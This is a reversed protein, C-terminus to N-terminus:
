RQSIGRFAARPRCSLLRPQPWQGIIGWIGLETFGARGSPADPGGGIFGNSLSRNRSNLLASRNTIIFTMGLWIFVEKYGSQRLAGGRSYLAWALVSPATM